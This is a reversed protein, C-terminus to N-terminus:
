RKGGKAKAPTAKGKPAPKADDGMDLPYPQEILLKAEERRKMVMALLTHPIAGLPEVTVMFQNKADPQVRIKTFIGHPPLKMGGAITKVFSAYGKVSTVPLKLFGIPAKEIAEEDKVAVFRGTKEDFAGGPILALRRTNRCAKGRGKDATGWENKECGLCVPNEEQKRKFVEEHPKLDKEDRAFAFCKPPIPNAPDFEGDYFVNEFIGDVIIVAMTNNPVPADNFSLVGGRVSFFAGGGANRELEAAIEAERALQEDWPVLAKSEAVATKRAM